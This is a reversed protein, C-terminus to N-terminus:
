NNWYILFNLLLILMKKSMKCSKNLWKKWKARFGICIRLPDKEYRLTQIKHLFFEAFSIPKDLSNVLITYESQNSTVIWSKANFWTFQTLIVGQM